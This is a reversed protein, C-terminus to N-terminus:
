SIRLPPLAVKAMRGPDRLARVMVPRGLVTAAGAAARVRFTVTRAEGPALSGVAQQMRVRQEPDGMAAFGAPIPLEALVGAVPGPGPNTVTVAFAVQDGHKVARRPAAVKAVLGDAVTEPGSLSYAVRVRYAATGRGLFRLKLVHPGPEPNTKVQLDAATGDFTARGINQDDLSASVFGRAIAPLDGVGMQARVVEATLFADGWTGDDLQQAALYSLGERCVDDFRGSQSLAAVAVATTEIAAGRGTAGTLTPAAGPYWNSGDPRQNRLMALRRLAEGTAAHRPREYVLATAAWALAAPDPLLGVREGLDDLAADVVAQDAEDGNTLALAAVALSADTASPSRETVDDDPASRLASEAATRLWARSRALLLPDVPTYNDIRRLVLLAFSTAFRDPPGGPRAAFTGAVTGDPRKDALAVLRQMAVQVRRTLEAERQPALRQSRKGLRLALAEADAAAAVDFFTASPRAAATELSATWLDLPEQLCEVQLRRASAGDPFEIPLDADRDIWGSALRQYRPADPLVQVITERSCSVTQNRAEVVFRSEGYEAGRLGVGLHMESHPELIVRQTPPVTLELGSNVTATVALPLREATPNAVLVPVTVQEGIRLEPPAHLELAPPTTVTTEMTATVTPGDGGAAFATVQWDAAPQQPLVPAAGNDFCLTEAALEPALPAPAARQLLDRAIMASRRGLSLTPPGTFQAARGAQNALERAQRGALLVGGSVVSALAVGALLAGLGAWAGRRHVQPVRGFRRREARSVTEMPDTFQEYVWATLAILILFAMVGGLIPSHAFFRQQAALARRQATPVSNATLTYGRFPAPEPHRTASLGRPPRVAAVLLSAGPPAEVQLRDSGDVASLSLGPPEAPVIHLPAQGTLWRGGVPAYALLTVPGSLEAPLRLILRGTGDAASLSRTSVLEGHQVLDLYVQGLRQAAAVRLAVDGGASAEATLPEVRVAQRPDAARFDVTQTALREGDRELTVQLRNWGTRPKLRLLARGTRVLVPTLAQGNLSPRATGHWPTDDVSEVRLCLRNELGGVLGDVSELAVTRRAPALAVVTADQGGRQDALTVAASLEAAPKTLGRTPLSFSARGAADTRAERQRAPGNGATVITTVPANAVPAGYATSVRVDGKVPRGRVITPEAPTVRVRLDQRVPAVIRVAAPTLVHDVGAWLTAEGDAVAPGIPARVFTQGGQLVMHRGGALRVGDRDTLQWTIPRKSPTGDAERAEVRAVLEGGAAVTANLPTVTVAPRDRVQVTHWVVARGGPASVEAVALYSGAEIREPLHLAADVTGQENTRGRFITQRWRSRQLRVSVDASVLPQDSARDRAVLRLSVPRSATWAESGHMQLEIPQMSPAWPHTVLLWGLLLLLSAEACWRIRALPPNLSITQRLRGFWGVTRVRDMVQATFDAPAPPATVAEDLVDILRTSEAFEALAEPHEAWYAEVAEREAPDLAGDLYLPIMARLDAESYRRRPM